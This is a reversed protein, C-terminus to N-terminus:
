KSTKNLSFEALWDELVAIQSESANTFAVGMGLRPFVFVVRGLGTFETSGRSITVRIVTGEASPNQTDLFCGGISLDGTSAKFWTVFEIEIVEADSIFQYRPARRRESEM